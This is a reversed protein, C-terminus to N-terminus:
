VKQFTWYLSNSRTNVKCTSLKTGGSIKSHSICRPVMDYLHSASFLMYTNKKGKVPVAAWEQKETVIKSYRKEIHTSNSIESRKGHYKDGDVECQWMVAADAYGGGKGHTTWRTSVCKHLTNKNIHLSFFKSGSHHKLAWKSASKGPSVINGSPNFSMYSSTGYAKIKYNGSAPQKTAKYIAEGDKKGTKSVGGQASALTVFLAVLAFFLISFNAM